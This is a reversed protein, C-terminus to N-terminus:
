GAFWVLLSSSVMCSPSSFVDHRSLAGEGGQAHGSPGFLGISRGWSFQEDCMLDGTVVFTVPSKRM